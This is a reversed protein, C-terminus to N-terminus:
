HKNCPNKGSCNKTDEVLGDLTTNLEQILDDDSKNKNRLMEDIKGSITALKQRVTLMETKEKKPIVIMLEKKDSSYKNYSKDVDYDDSVTTVITSTKTSITGHIDCKSKVTFTVEGDNIDRQVSTVIEGNNLPFTIKMDDKEESIKASNENLDNLFAKTDYNFFPEFPWRNLENFARVISSM